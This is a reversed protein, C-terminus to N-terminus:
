EPMLERPLWRFIANLHNKLVQKGAATIVYKNRGKRGRRRILEGKTLRGILTHLASHKGLEIDRAIQQATRSKGDALYALLTISKLTLNIESPRREAESLRKSPDQVFCYGFRTGNRGSDIEEKAVLGDQVLDTLVRHTWSQSMGCANAVAKLSLTGSAQPCSTLVDLVKQVSSKVSPPKPAEPPAALAPSTETQSNQRLVHGIYHAVLSMAAGRTEPHDALAAELPEQMDPPLAQNALRLAVWAINRADGADWPLEQLEAEHLEDYLGWLNGIAADQTSVHGTHSDYYEM